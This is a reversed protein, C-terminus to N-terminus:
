RSTLSKLLRGDALHRCNQSVIEMFGLSRTDILCFTDCTIDWFWKTVNSESIEIDTHALQHPLLFTLIQPTTTLYQCVERIIEMWLEPCKSCKNTSWHALFIWFRALHGGWFSWIHKGFHAKDELHVEWGVKIQLKIINPTRNEMEAGQSWSVM